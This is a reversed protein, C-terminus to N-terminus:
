FKYDSIDPCFTSVNQRLGRAKAAVIIVIITSAADLQQLFTEVALHHRSSKNAVSPVLLLV